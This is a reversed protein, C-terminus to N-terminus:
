RTPYRNPRVAVAHRHVGRRGPLTSVFRDGGARVVRGMEGNDEDGPFTEPTYLENLVRRVLRDTVEPRGVRSPNWLVGHVPQNSHAYQGMSGGLMEAMEHIQTVYTGARFHPPLAVMQEIGQALADVGGLLDALAEVDHPVAFRYQWAGGERFPGGWRFPDFPEVFRGAQDKPRLFRTSADFVNRWNGARRKFLELHETEGVSEAVVACCWDNYSYDLTRCVSDLKGVRRAIALGTTRRSSNGASGVKQIAPFLRM